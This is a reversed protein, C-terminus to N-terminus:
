SRDEAMIALMACYNALDMLRGKIPESTERRPDKIYSQVASYHKQMYVGVVQESSLGMATGADKIDKFATGTPNYDKGKFAFLGQCQKFFEGTKVDRMQMDM